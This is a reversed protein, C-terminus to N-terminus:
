HRDTVWDRYGGIGSRVWDQFPEGAAHVDADDPQGDFHTRMRDAVELASEQDANVVYLSGIEGAAEKFLNLVTQDYASYGIVLVDVQTSDALLESVFEVHEPPCVLEDEPGLPVSLAPYTNFTGSDDRHVRLAEESLDWAHLIVSRDIKDTLHAPPNDLDLGGVDDLRYGWTISGHLKILSWRDRRIFDRMTPLPRLAVLCRDLLADYNLTVFCVHPFDELLRNILRNLNDPDLDWPESVQWLVRQLYLPLSLFRRQDLEDKSDRYRIRIHDELSIAPAHGTDAMADTIDPAANKVM